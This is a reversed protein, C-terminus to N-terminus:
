KSAQGQFQIIQTNAQQQKDMLMPVRFGRLKLVELVVAENKAKQEPTIQREIM